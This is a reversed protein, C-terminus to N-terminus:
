QVREQGPRSLQDLSALTEGELSSVYADAEMSIHAPVRGVVICRANATRAARIGPASDELALTGGRTLPRNRRLRDLALHYGEASPKPDLTDTSSVTVSFAHELGSLKLLADADNRNARTVVGLRAGNAAQELFARSGRQLSVGGMSLRSAFSKEAALAVLDILVDDAPVRAAAFAVVAAARPTLGLVADADFATEIGQAALADRLAALRLERTAFVVGELEVLVVDVMTM